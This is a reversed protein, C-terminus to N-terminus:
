LLPRPAPNSLFMDWRFTKKQLLCKTGKSSCHFGVPCCHRGDVCCTGQVALPSHPGSFAPGLGRGGGAGPDPVASVKLYPCCAWEELHNRCCTQDDHCFHGEGCEVGGIHPGLTLRAAPQVSDVEKECTRAKVNCTYGAPCCHQHDECCVAQSRPM